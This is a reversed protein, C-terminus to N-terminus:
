TYETWASGLIFQVFEISQNNKHYCHYPDNDQMDGGSKWIVFLCQKARSFSFNLLMFVEFVVCMLHGQRPWRLVPAKFWLLSGPGSSFSGDVMAQPNSKFITTGGLFQFLCFYSVCFCHHLNVFWFCSLAQRWTWFPTTDSRWVLMCFRLCITHLVYEFRWIQVCFVCGYETIIRAFCAGNWVGWPVYLITMKPCTLSTVSRTQIQATGDMDSHVGSQYMQITLQLRLNKESRRPTSLVTKSQVLLGKVMKFALQAMTARTADKM